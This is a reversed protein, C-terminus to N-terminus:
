VGRVRVNQILCKVKYVSLGIYINQGSFDLQKSKNRM